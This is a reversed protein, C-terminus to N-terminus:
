YFFVKNPMDGKETSHLNLKKIKDYYLKESGGSVFSSVLQTIGCTWKM